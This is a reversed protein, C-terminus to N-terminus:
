GDGPLVRGKKPTTTARNITDNRVVCRLGARKKGMGTGTKGGWRDGQKGLKKGKVL